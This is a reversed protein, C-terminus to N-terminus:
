HLGFLHKQLFRSTSVFVGENATSPFGMVKQSFRSLIRRIPYNRELLQHGKLPCEKRLTGAQPQRALEDCAFTIRQSKKDAPGEAGLLASTRRESLAERRLRFCQQRCYENPHKARVKVVFVGCPLVFCGSVCVLPIHRRAKTKEPTEGKFLIFRLAAACRRGARLSRFLRAKETFRCAPHNSICLM